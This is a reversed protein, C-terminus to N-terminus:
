IGMQGLIDVISELTRSFTPHHSEFDRAASILRDNFSEDVLREPRQENLASEIESSVDGLIARGEDDLHETAELHERLADLKAQLQQIHDSM